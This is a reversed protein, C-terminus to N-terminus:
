WQGVSDSRRFLAAPAAEDHDGPTAAAENSLQKKESHTAHGGGSVSPVPPSATNAALKSADTFAQVM